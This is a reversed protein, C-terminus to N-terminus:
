ARKALVKAQLNDLFAAIDQAAQATSLGFRAAFQQELAQPKDEGDLIRQVLYSASHNLSLVQHGQVDLLVGTGDALFTPTIGHQDLLQRLQAPNIM